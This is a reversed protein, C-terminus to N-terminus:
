AESHKRKGQFIYKKTRKVLYELYDAYATRGNNGLHSVIQNTSTKKLFSFMAAQDDSHKGKNTQNRHRVKPSYIFLCWGWEGNEQTTQSAQKRCPLYLLNLFLFTTVFWTAGAISNSQTFYKREKARWIYKQAYIWKTTHYPMMEYSVHTEKIVLSWWTKRCTSDRRRQYSSRQILPSLKLLLLVRM